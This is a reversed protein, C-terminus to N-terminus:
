RMPITAPRGLLCALAAEIQRDPALWAALEEGRLDNNPDEPVGNSQIQFRRFMANTEDESLHVPIDPRIGGAGNSGTRRLQNGLPTQYSAVTIKIAYRDDAALHWSRQVLGKGFTTEGVVFAAGWDQLAGTLVESASASNKNVLVAIPVELLADGGSTTETEGDLVLNAPVGLRQRRERTAESSPLLRVIVRNAESTLMNAVERVSELVGGPNERLDIVLGRIEGKAKLQLIVERFQSATRETFSAIRLYAIGAEQDLFRGGNVNAIVVVRRTVTLEIEQGDREVILTVPEGQKGRIMGQSAEWPMGLLPKGDVSIIRDGPLVGADKAAGEQNVQTVLLQGSPQVQIQVGIGGFEGGVRERHRQSEAPPQLETYPDGVAAAAGQLGGNILATRDVPGDYFQELKTIVEDMLVHHIGDDGAQVANAYGAESMRWLILFGLVAMLPLLVSQVQAARNSM